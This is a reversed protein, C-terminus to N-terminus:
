GNESIVAEAEGEQRIAGVPKSHWRVGDEEEFKVIYSPSTVKREGIAVHGHTIFQRAQKMTQAMKKRVVVTQLRRELMDKTTLALVDDLTADAKKLLFSRVRKLLRGAREDLGAGKKSLLRRAERRIKRLITKMRWLERSNKLGYEEKLGSEEEIRKADWLRKPKEYLKRRKHPDGM